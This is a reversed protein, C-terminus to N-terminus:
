FSDNGTGKVEVTVQRDFVSESKHCALNPWGDISFSFTKCEWNGKMEHFWTLLCQSIQWRALIFLNGNGTLEELDALHKSKIWTSMQPGNPTGETKPWLYKRVMTSSLDRNVQIYKIFSLDLVLFRKCYKTLMTFSCNLLGTLTMRDSLPLSNRMVSKKWEVPMKCWVEHGSVGCCFTTTSLFCWSISLM